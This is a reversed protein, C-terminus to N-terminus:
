IYGVGGCFRKEMEPSLIKGPDNREMREEHGKEVERLTSSNLTIM